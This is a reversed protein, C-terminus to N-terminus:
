KKKPRGGRYAPYKDTTIAKNRRKGFQPPGGNPDSKHPTVISVGEYPKLKSRDHPNKRKNAM